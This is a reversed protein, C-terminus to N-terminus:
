VVYTGAGRAKAWLNGVLPSRECRSRSILLRGIPLCWREITAYYVVRFARYMGCAFASIRCSRMKRFHSELQAQSFSAQFATKPRGHRGYRHHTYVDDLQAGEGQLAGDNLLLPEDTIGGRALFMTADFELVQERTVRTHAV